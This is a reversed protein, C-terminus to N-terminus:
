DGSEFRWGAGFSFTPGADLGDETPVLIVGAGLRAVFGLETHIAYGVQGIAASGITDGSGVFGFDVVNVLLSGNLWLTQPPPASSDVWGLLYGSAGVGAMWNFVVNNVLLEVSFRERLIM